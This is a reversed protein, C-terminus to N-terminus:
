VVLLHPIINLYFQMCVVDRAAKKTVPAGALFENEAREQARELYRKQDISADTENGSTAAEKSQTVDFAAEGYPGGLRGSEAMEILKCKCTSAATILVKYEEGRTWSKAASTSKRAGHRVVQYGDEVVWIAQQFCKIKEGFRAFRSGRGGPVLNDLKQLDSLETIILEPGSLYQTKSLPNSIRFSAWMRKGYAKVCTECETFLCEQLAEFANSIIDESITSMAM